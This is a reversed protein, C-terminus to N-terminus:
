DDRGGGNSAEYGDDGHSTHKVVVIPPPRHYIIRQQPAPASAAAPTTAAPAPTTAALAKALSREYANLQRTKAAVAADNARRAASGLGTTRIAAFTGGIAALAILAAIVTVHLKHM